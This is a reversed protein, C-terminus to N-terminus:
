KIKSFRLQHKGSSAEFSYWLDKKTLRDL